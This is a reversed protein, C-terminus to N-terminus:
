WDDLGGGPATPTSGTTPGGTAGSSPPLGWDNWDSSAPAGSAPSASPAVPAGRLRGRGGDDPPPPPADGLRSRVKAVAAPVRNRADVLLESLRGAAPAVVFFIEVPGGHPDSPDLLAVWRDQVSLPLRAYRGRRTTSPNASSISPQESVVAYSPETFGLGMRARIAARGNLAISRRDTGALVVGRLEQETISAGTLFSSEAGVQGALSGIALSADPFRATAWKVLYLLLVPLAIGAATILATYIWFLTDNRHREMELEYRVKVAVPPQTTDKPLTMVTLTGSALGAGDEGVTLELPISGETCTGEDKASSTLELGKIGDPLTLPASNEVWGCGSGDLELPAKFTGGKDTRGFSVLNPVKPYQEPPTIVLPFNM